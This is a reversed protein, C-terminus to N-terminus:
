DWGLWSNLEDFPLADAKSGVHRQDEPTAEIAALRRCERAYEGNHRRLFTRLDWWSLSYGLEDLNRGVSLLDYAIFEEFEAVLDLLGLIGGRHGAIGQGM